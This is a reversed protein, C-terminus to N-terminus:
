EIQRFHSLSYNTEVEIEWIKSLVTKPNYPFCEFIVQYYQTMANLKWLRFVSQYLLINLLLSNM